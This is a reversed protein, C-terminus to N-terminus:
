MCVQDFATYIALPVILHTTLIIIYSVIDVVVRFSIIIYHIKIIFCIAVSLQPQFLACAHTYCLPTHAIYIAIAALRIM